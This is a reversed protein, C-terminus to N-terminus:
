WGQQEKSSNINPDFSGSIWEKYIDIVDGDLLLNKFTKPHENDDNYYSNICGIMDAPIISDSTVINDILRLCDLPLGRLRYGGPAKTPINCANMFNEARIRGETQIIDEAWTKLNDGVEMLLSKNVDELKEPEQLKVKNTLVEKYKETLMYSGSFEAIIGVNILDQIIEDKNRM